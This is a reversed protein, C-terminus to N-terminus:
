DLGVVKPKTINPSEFFRPTSLSIKFFFIQGEVPPNPILSVRFEFTDFVLSENRIRVGGGMVYYTQTYPETIRSESVNGVGLHAYTAFRFGYFYWPQFVVYETTLTVTRNGEIQNGTINGIRNEGQLSQSKPISLRQGNFFHIRTFIRSYAGGLDFLPTFHRADMQIVENSRTNQKTFYGSEVNFLFYGARDNYFSYSTRFGRYERPGFETWDKGGIISYIFGVPVDETINFSLINKTKLYNIKSYSIAGVLFHHNQYIENSDAMVMPRETFYDHQLRLAFSLNKRTGLQFSRAGWVDYSRRDINFNEEYLSDAFILDQIPQVHELTAEGYYKIEPSIFDRRFTLGKSKGLYNNSAFVTGDIFSNQINRVTYRADFGHNPTEAKNYLYGVGFENGTGLINRNTFGARVASNDDVSLDVSWPFRDKVIMDVRVAEIDLPDPTIQIRADEIYSLSRIIRESDAMKFPDVLDGKQFLLYRQVVEFSTNRHLENSLRGISSQAKRTTDNVSGGFLDVSVYNIESIRKNRFVEFYAESKVPDKTEFPDQPQSKTVLLNFLEKTVRSQKAVSYISDYFGDSLVYKDSFIQYEITDAVIFSTDMKPVYLSDNIIIVQNSTVIITDSQALTIQSLVVM